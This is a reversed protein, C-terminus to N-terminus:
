KVPLATIPDVVRGAPVAKGTRLSIEVGTTKNFLGEAHNEFCSANAKLCLVAVCGALVSFRSPAKRGEADHHPRLPVYRVLDGPSPPDGDYEARSLILIFPARGEGVGVRLVRNRALFDDLDDDFDRWVGSRKGWRYLKRMEDDDYVYQLVGIVLNPYASSSRLGCHGVPCGPPSLGPSNKATREQAVSLNFVASAFVLLLALMRRACGLWSRGGWPVTARFRM